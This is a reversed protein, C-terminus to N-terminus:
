RKFPLMHYLYIILHTRLPLTSTTRLHLSFLHYPAFYLQYNIFCRQLVTCHGSWSVCRLLNLLFLCGWRANGKLRFFNFLSRFWDAFAKFHNSLGHVLGLILRCDFLFLLLLFLSELLNPLHHILFLLLPLIGSSKCSSCYIWIFSGSLNHNSSGIICRCPNGCITWWSFNSWGFFISVIFSFTLSCM